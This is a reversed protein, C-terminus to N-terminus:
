WVLQAICNLQVGPTKTQLDFTIYGLMVGNDDFVGVEFFEPPNGLQDSNAEGALVINDIETIAPVASFWTVDAITLAKRFTFLPEAAKRVGRGGLTAGIYPATLTVQLNNDVTLIQGWDDVESGPLGASGYGVGASPGPKIWQGVALDVLFSTATGTVINSGNTFLATGGGALVDGESALDTRTALPAVPVKPPVNVFGGEGIKFRVIDKKTDATDLAYVRSLVTRWVESVIGQVAM